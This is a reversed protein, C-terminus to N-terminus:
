QCTNTTKSFLILQKISYNLQAGTVRHINSKIFERIAGFHLSKNKELFIDYKPKM